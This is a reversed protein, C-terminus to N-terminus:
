AMVIQDQHCGLGLQQLSLGTLLECQRLDIQLDSQLVDLNFDGIILELLDDRQCFSQLAVGTLQLFSVPHLETL